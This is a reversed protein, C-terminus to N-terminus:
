SSSSQMAEVQVPTNSHVIDALSFVVVGDVYLIGDSVSVAKGSREARQKLRDFTRQRRVERTEDAALYIRDSYNKLQFSNSLALRRDWASHLKVVIPRVKGSSYHGGVRFTDVIAVPRGVVFRLVDFVKQRWINVNKNETVGYVILNSSRDIPPSLSSPQVAPPQQSCPVSGSTPVAASSLSSLKECCNSIADLRSNVAVSFADFSDLQLRISEFKATIDKMEAESSHSREGNTTEIVDLRSSINNVAAELINQKETVSSVNLDEPSYRPIRDFDAPVFSLDQLLLKNDILDFIGIIDDVEAGSAPRSVTNRREALFSSGALVESFMALLFKKAGNIEAATYFGNLVRRVSDVNSRDRYFQAYALLENIAISKNNSNRYVGVGLDSQSCHGQGSLVVDIEDNQKSKKSDHDESSDDVLSEHQRLGPARKPMRDKKVPTSPFRADTCADCLFLDGQRSRVSADCRADPCAITIGVGGSRGECRPM